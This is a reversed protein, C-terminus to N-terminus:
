HKKENKHLHRLAHTLAAVYADNLGGLRYIVVESIGLSAALEVDHALQKPPLLPETGLIGRAITGFAPICSNGWNSKAATLAKALDRRHMSQYLMLIRHTRFRLPDVHLGLLAALATNMAYEATFVRPHGAIFGDILKRNRLLNPIQSVALLPNRLPLELDLMVPVTSHRLERFIRQLAARRSFPSIWYGESQALTPWYVCEKVHRKIRSSLRSFERLSPAALYLRVPWSVLKLKTLNEQTPFEEFFSILM